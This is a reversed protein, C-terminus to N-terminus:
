VSLFFLAFQGFGGSPLYVRRHRSTIKVLIIYHTLVYRRITSVMQSASIIHHRRNQVSVEETLRPGWVTDSNFVTCTSHSDKNLM